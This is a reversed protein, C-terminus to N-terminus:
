YITGGWEVVSFGYRKFKSLNEKSIDTKKDVKKIHIVIRLMSDPKPSILLKNYSEREKTLEFYVLSKKNKELVPLWYMIFENKEKDNLGIYSLKDELFKIADKDEVYFGEKFDVKHVKKEDWYLAYYYKGDKDYLDGNSLATVEWKNIFKPYTTELYEPHSFGVTVKMEEEPYLYLIPKAVGGCTFDKSEGKKSKLNYSYEICEDESDEKHFQFILDGNYELIYNLGKIGKVEGFDFLIEKKMNVLLIKNDKNVLMYSGNTVGYINDYEGDIIKNGDLDYIIGNKGYEICAYLYDGTRSIYEYNFPIIEKGNTYDIVGYKNDKYVIIEKNNIVKISEVPGIISSQNDSVAIGDYIGAIIAKETNIDYIGWKNNILVALYKTDYNDKNKFPLVAEYKINELIKNGTIYNKIQVKSDQDLYLVYNTDGFLVADFYVGTDVVYIDYNKINNPKELSAVKTNKNVYVNIKNEDEDIIKEEQKIGYSYKTKKGDYSCENLYVKGDEYIEHVECNIDYELDVLKIAEEYSLIKGDKTYSLEVVKELAEGYSKIRSEKDKESVQEEEYVKDKNKDKIRKNNITVILLILLLLIILISLIIIILKKKKNKSDTKIEDKIVDDSVEIEKNKNDTEIEDEIVDDSIVDIKKTKELEKDKEDM